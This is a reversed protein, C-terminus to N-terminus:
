KMETAATEKFAKLADEPTIEKGKKNIYHIDFASDIHLFFICEDKVCKFQHLHKSPLYAFGGEKLEASKMDKMDIKAVGKVMMVSENSTHWHWPISCGEVTKALLTAAGTAPDGNQVAMTTCTPLGPITMFKMAEMNQGASGEATEKAHISVPLTLVFMTFM